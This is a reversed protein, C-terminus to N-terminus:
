LCRRNRGAQKLLAAQIAQILEEVQAPSLSLKEKAAEEKKRQESILYNFVDQRLERSERGSWVKTGIGGTVLMALLIHEPGIQPCGLQLAETLSVEIVKKAEPTMRDLLLM